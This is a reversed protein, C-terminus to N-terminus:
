DAESSSLSVLVRPIVRPFVDISAPLRRRNDSTAAFDGEKERDYRVNDMM